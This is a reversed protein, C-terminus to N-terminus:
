KPFGAPRSVPVFEAKDRDWRDVVLANVGVGRQLGDRFDYIGNIGVYGHLNSLYEHLRQTSVNTGLTRLADILLMAADWASQNAADPRVGAEKFAAFFPKQADDIPGRAVSHPVISLFGPFYLEKPLFSQYAVLQPIVMNGNAVGIPVDFGIDNVGRMTTAWGTGVAFTLLAQPNAAKIRALQAAVSVDNGNMHEWAVIEIDKGDPFSQSYRVGRDWAQGSVDTTALIGLRKWGRSRFYRILVRTADDTSAGTAFMYSGAPPYVGPSTCWTVPGKQTVLPMTAACTAAFGPGLIFPLKEGALQSVLQVSVQSNSGDDAVVFKIPRGKIGGQRNVYTEVIGLTKVISQGIFAAPGTMSEIVNIEFPGQDAARSAGATALALMGAVVVICLRSPGWTM